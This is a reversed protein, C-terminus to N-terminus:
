SLLGKIWDLLVDYQNQKEPQHRTILYFSENLKIKIDPLAILEGSELEHKSLPLTALTIGLGAKAAQIGADYSDFHHKEIAEYEVQSLNTQSHLYHWWDDHEPRCHILSQAQWNIKHQIGNKNYYDPSCALVLYAPSILHASADPKSTFRIAADLGHIELAMYNETSQLALKINPHTQNFSSLNPILYQNALYATTSLKLPQKHQSNIFDQFGTEYEQIIHGSLALFRVGTDTLSLQKKDRNFLSLVLHRELSKMQQSIASPTLHLEFAAEKFSMHKAAIVFTKLYQIPPAKPKDM